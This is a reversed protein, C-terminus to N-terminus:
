EIVSLSLCFKRLSEETKKGFLRWIGQQKEEQAEMWHQREGIQEGRGVKGVHIKAVNEQSQEKAESSRAGLAAKKQPIKLNM